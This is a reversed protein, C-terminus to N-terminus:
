EPKLIHIGSYLYIATANYFLVKGEDLKLLRKKM